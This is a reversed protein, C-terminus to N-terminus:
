ENAERPTDPHCFMMGHLGNSADQNSQLPLIRPYISSWFIKENEKDEKAWATFRSTGGLREAVEVITDKATQTIKNLAGKQRGGSKPLGKPKGRM